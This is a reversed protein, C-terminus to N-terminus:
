FRSSSLMVHLLQGVRWVSRNQYPPLLIIIQLLGKAHLLIEGQKLCSEPIMTGLFVLRLTARKAGIVKWEVRMM